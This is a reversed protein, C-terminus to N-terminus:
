APALSYIHTRLFTGAPDLHTIINPPLALMKYTSGARSLPSQLIELIKHINPRTIPDAKWCGARLYLLRTIYPDTFAISDESLDPSVEKHIGKEGLSTITEQTDNESGGELTKYIREQDFFKRFSSRRELFDQITHHKCSKGEVYLVFYTCLSDEWVGM